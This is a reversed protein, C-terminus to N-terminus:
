RPVVNARCWQALAGEDVVGTAVDVMLSVVAAEAAIIRYGNLGLFVYMVQFATRKNGDVFAHYKALGIGYAAALAALDADPEYHYRNQPRDLASELLPVDRIGHSGGHQQILSSHVAEVVTRSVWRPEGNVPLRASGPQAPPAHSAM